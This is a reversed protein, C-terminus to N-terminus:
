PRDLERRLLSYICYSHVAGNKYIGDRMTGEYTFGAKELVRRSAANEAFPEAEIRLLDEWADFGLACMQRVAATMIGRGWFARGLWYGTEASRHYVDTKRFLGISGAAQGDLVIARCFQGQGESKICARVYSEADALTYPYPFVDRLNGAVADDDAHPVIAAADETRWPRLIFEM